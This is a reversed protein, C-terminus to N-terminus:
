RYNCKTVIKEGHVVLGSDLQRRRGVHIAAGIHHGRKATQLLIFSLNLKRPWYPGRLGPSVMGPGPIARCREWPGPVM